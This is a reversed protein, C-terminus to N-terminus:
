DTNNTHIYVPFGDDNNKRISYAESIIRADTENDFAWHISELNVSIDKLHEEKVKPVIAM